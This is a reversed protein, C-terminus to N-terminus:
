FFSDIYIIFFILCFIIILFCLFIYIKWFFSRLNNICLWNLLTTYLETVLLSKSIFIFKFIQM